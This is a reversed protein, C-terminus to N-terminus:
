RKEWLADVYYGHTDYFLHKITFGAKEAYKGITERDYKRSIEVHIPEWARFHFTQHLSGVYM